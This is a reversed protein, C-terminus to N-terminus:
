CAQIRPKNGLMVYVTHPPANTYDWCLPPLPLLILPELDDKSGPLTSAQRSYILGHRLIFVVGSTKVTPHNNLLDTM